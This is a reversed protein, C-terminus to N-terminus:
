PISVLVIDMDCVRVCFFIRFFDFCNCVFNPPQDQDHFWLAKGPRQAGHCWDPPIGELAVPFWRPLELLRPTGHPELEDWREHCGARCAVVFYLLHSIFWVFKFMITVWILLTNRLFFYLYLVGDQCFFVFLIIIRVLLLFYVIFWFYYYYFILVFCFLNFLRGDRIPVLINKPIYQKLGNKSIVFWIMEIPHLLMHACSDNVLFLHFQFAIQKM